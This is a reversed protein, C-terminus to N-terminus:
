GACRVCIPSGSEPLSGDATTVDVRGSGWALLRATQDPDPAPAAADIILRGLDFRASPVGAILRGDIVDAHCSACTMALVTGGPVEARVLGGVGRVPNLWLGYREALLRTLPGPPPPALQVPYRFFAEEGLAELPISPEWTAEDPVALPYAADPLAAASAGTDSSRDSSRDSSENSSENSSPLDLEAVTVPAVRPNWPVLRDWDGDTGSAYHALRLASYGNEPNVLSSVLAARRSAADRLYAREAAEPTGPQRRM